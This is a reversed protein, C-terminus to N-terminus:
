HLLTAFGEGARKSRPYRRGNLWKGIFSHRVFLQYTLPLTVALCALLVLYKIVPALALPYLLVQVAALVPIHIIYIWYSSDAAYRVAKSEAKVFQVAFGTLGLTWAWVAVAYVCGYIITSTSHPTFELSPHVGVRWSCFLTAAIAILIQVKWWAALDDFLSEQRQILWGLLFAASYGVIAAGSPVFGFAAPPIGLWARWDPTMAFAIALPAALCVSVAPTAMLTRMLRDSLPMIWRDSRNLCSVLLRLLLAGAYLLLLVYHFWLHTLPITSLSLQPRAGGAGGGPIFSQGTTRMAWIACAVTLAGVIPYFVLFPAAIRALRNRIFKRTGRRELLLRGFYGALLFFLPM